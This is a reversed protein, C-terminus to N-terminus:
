RGVVERGVAKEPNTELPIREQIYIQGMREALIQLTDIFRRTSKRQSAVLLSLETLAVLVVADDRPAARKVITRMDNVTEPTVGKQKVLFALDDIRDILNEAPRELEFEDAIRGFDSWRELDSVAGIGLFAVDDVDEAKLAVATEEVISVFQADYEECVERIAGVFYQTTNCAIGVVTAGRECLRRVGNLVIPRVLSLREELEMSLGM